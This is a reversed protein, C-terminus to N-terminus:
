KVLGSSKKVGKSPGAAKAGKAGGPRLRAGFQDELGDTGYIEALVDKVGRKPDQQEAKLKAEQEEKFLEERWGDPNLARRIKQNRIRDEKASLLTIGLVIITFGTELNQNSDPDLTMFWEVVRDLPDPNYDDTFRQFPPLEPAQAPEANHALNGRLARRRASPGSQKWFGTFLVGQSMWLTVTALLPLALCRSR